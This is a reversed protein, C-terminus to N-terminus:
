LQELDTPDFAVKGSELYYLGWKVQLGPQGQWLPNVSIKTRMFKANFLSVRDLNEQDKPDIPKGGNFNDSVYKIAPEIKKFLQPLYRGKTQLVANKVAGCDTHGLAVVLKVHLKVLAYELSALDSSNLVVADNLVPGAVRIVFIEGLGRDFILEPPVRSDMCTLVVAFPSQSRATKEREVKWNREQMSSQWRMNGCRLAQLATNADDPEIEVLPCPGDAAQSPQTQTQSRPKRQASSASLLSLAITLGILIVLARFTSNKM